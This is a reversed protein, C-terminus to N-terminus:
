FTAATDIVHGAVISRVRQGVAAEQVAQNAAGALSESQLAEGIEIQEVVPDFGGPLLGRATAISPDSPAASVVLAMVVRSLLEWKTVEPAAPKLKPLRRNRPTLSGIAPKLEAWSATISIM